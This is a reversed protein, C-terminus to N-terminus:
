VREKGTDLLIGTSLKARRKRQYDRNYKRMKKLNKLYYTNKWELYRERNDKRWKKTREYSTM